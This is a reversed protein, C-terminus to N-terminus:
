SHRAGHSGRGTARWSSRRRRWTRMLSEEQTCTSRASALMARLLSSGRWLGRRPKMMCLRWQRVSRVPWLVDCTVSFWSLIGVEFSVFVIQLASYRLVPRDNRVQLGAHRLWDTPTELDGTRRRIEAEKILTKYNVYQKSNYYFQIVEKTSKGKLFSAIRRFNKPFQLFKDLFICKEMDSWPNSRREQEAVARPCNCGPSCESQVDQGRCRMLNGDTTLRANIDDIFTYSGELEPALLMAPVQVSGQEIRKRMKEKEVLEKAIVSVDFESNAYEGRAVASRHIREFTISRVSRLGLGTGLDLRRRLGSEPPLNLDEEEEEWGPHRRRWLARLGLYQEVLDHRHYQVEAKRRMVVRRVAELKRRSARAGAGAEVGMGMSSSTPTAPPEPRRLELAEHRIRLAASYADGWRPARHPRLQDGFAAELANEADQLEGLLGTLEASVGAIAEELAGAEPLRAFRVERHQGEGEGEGQEGQAGVEVLPEISAEELLEKVKASARAARVVEEEHASVMGCVPYGLSSYPSLKGNQMGIGLSEREEEEGEEEEEGGDEEMQDDEQGLEEGEDLRLDEELEMEEEVARLGDEVQMSEEEEEEGEKRPRPAAEQPKSGKSRKPVPLPPEDGGEMEDRSRARGQKRSRTRSAGISVDQLELAETLREM